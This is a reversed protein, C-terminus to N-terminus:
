KFPDKTKMSPIEGTPLHLNAGTPLNSAPKSKSNGAGFALVYFLGGAIAVDKLFLVFEVERLSDAVFWFHHFLISSIFLFVLLLFSAFRIKVGLFLLSGGLLQLSVICVLLAPVWELIITFINQLIPSFGSYTRWDLLINNLGHETEQWDFINNLASLLFFLSICIRGLCVLVKQWSNM